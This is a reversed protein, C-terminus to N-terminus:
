IIFVNNLLYIPNKSYPPSHASICLQKENIVELCFKFIFNNYPLDAVAALFTNVQYHNKVANGSHNYKVKIECCKTKISESGTSEDSSQSEGECLDVGFSLTKQQTLFCLHEFYAFSHSSVFLTLVLVLAFVKHFRNKM